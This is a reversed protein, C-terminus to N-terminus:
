YYHKVDCQLAQGNKVVLDSMMGAVFPSSHLRTISLIFSTNYGLYNRPVAVSGLWPSQDSAADGSVRTNAPFGSM